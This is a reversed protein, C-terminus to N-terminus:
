TSTGSRALRVLTRGEGRHPRGEIFERKKRATFFFLFFCDVRSVVMRLIYLLTVRSVPEFTEMAFLIGRLCLTCCLDTKKRPLLARNVIAKPETHHRLAAHTAHVNREDLM